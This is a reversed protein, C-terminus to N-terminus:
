VASCPSLATVSIPRGAMRRFYPRRPADVQGVSLFSLTGTSMGKRSPMKVRGASKGLLKVRESKMKRRVVCSRRREPPVPRAAGISANREEHWALPLFTQRILKEDIGTLAPYARPAHTLISLWLLCSWAIMKTPLRHFGRETPAAVCFRISSNVASPLSSSTSDASKPTSKGCMSANMTWPPSPVVTSASRVPLGTIIEPQRSKSWRNQPLTHSSRPTPGRVVCMRSRWRVQTLYMSLASSSLPLKALAALACSHPSGFSSPTAVLTSHTRTSSSSLPM